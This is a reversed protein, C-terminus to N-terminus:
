GRRNKPQLSVFLGAIIQNCKNYDPFMKFNVTKSM